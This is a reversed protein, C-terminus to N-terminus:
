KRYEVACFSSMFDLDDDSSNPCPTITKLENKKNAPNPSSSSFLRNRQPSPGKISSQSPTSENIVTKEKQQMETLISLVQSLDKKIGQLEQQSMDHKQELITIKEQLKEEREAFLKQQSM